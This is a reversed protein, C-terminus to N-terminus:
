HATKSRPKRPADATESERLCAPCLGKQTTHMEWGDTEPLLAVLGCRECVVLMKNSPM